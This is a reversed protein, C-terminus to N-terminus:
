SLRVYKEKDSLLLSMIWNERKEEETLEGIM